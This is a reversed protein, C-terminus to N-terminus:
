EGRDNFTRGIGESPMCVQAAGCRIYLLSFLNLSLLSTMGLVKFPINGNSSGESDRQACYLLARENTRIAAPVFLNGRLLIGWFYNPVQGFNGM